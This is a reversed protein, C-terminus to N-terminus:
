SSRNLKQWRWFNGDKQTKISHCNSCLIQCQELEKILSDSSFTEIARSINNRKKGIHDFELVLPNSENCISCKSRLLINWIIEINEEKNTKRFDQNLKKIRKSNEKYWEKHAQKNCEKCYAQLCKKTRNKAFKSNEKQEKCRSCIKM